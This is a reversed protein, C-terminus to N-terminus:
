EQLLESPAIGFQRRFSRSFHTPETYGVRFAVESVTGEGAQLMRHAETMRISRIFEGPSQDTLGKLKRQLTRSHLNMAHALEEVGFGSEGMQRRVLDAARSVFRDEMLLADVAEEGGLQRQMRARYNRRSELLNHERM